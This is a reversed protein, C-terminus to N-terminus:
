SDNTISSCWKDVGYKMDRSGLMTIVVRDNKILAYFKKAGTYGGLSNKANYTGCVRWGFRVSNYGYLPAKRSHGKVLDYFTFRASYPDILKLKIADAVKDKYDSSPMPGHNAVRIESKTPGSAICGTLSLLAITSFITIVIKKLKM